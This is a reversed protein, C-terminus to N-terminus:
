NPALESIYKAQVPLSRQGMEAMKLKMEQRPLLGPGKKMPESQLTRKHLTSKHCLGSTDEVGDM